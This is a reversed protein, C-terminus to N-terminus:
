LSLLNKRSSEGRWMLYIFIVPDVSSGLFIAVSFRYFGGKPAFSV